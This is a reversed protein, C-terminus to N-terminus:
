KTAMTVFMYIFHYLGTHCKWWTSSQNLPPWTTLADFKRNPGKIPGPEGPNLVYSGVEETFIYSTQEM